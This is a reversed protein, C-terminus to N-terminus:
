TIRVPATLESEKNNGVKRLAGLKMLEHIHSEFQDRARPSAPHAPIILFPPYPIEVHIIINVEHGKIAGPKENYSSIAERHQFLIEILDEKM